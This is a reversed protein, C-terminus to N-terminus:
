IVWFEDASFLASIKGSDATGSKVHAARRTARPNAKVLLREIPTVALRM